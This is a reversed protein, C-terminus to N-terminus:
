IHSNELDIDSKSTSKDRSLVGMEVLRGRIIRERMSAGRSKHAIEYVKSPTTFYLIALKLYKWKHVSTKWSKSKEKTM